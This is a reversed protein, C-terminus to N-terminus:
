RNFGQQRSRGLREFDTGETPHQTGFDEAQVQGKRDIRRIEGTNVLGEQVVPHQHKALLADGGLLLDSEAAAEAFQLDMDELLEQEGAM